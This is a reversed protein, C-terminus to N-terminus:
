DACRSRMYFAFSSPPRISNKVCAPRLERTRSLRIRGFPWRGSRNRVTSTSSKLRAPSSSFSAQDISSPTLLCSGIWSPHLHHLDPPGVPSYAWSARSATLRQWKSRIAPLTTCNMRARCTSPGLCSVDIRM